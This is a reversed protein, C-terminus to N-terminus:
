LPEGAAPRLLPALLWNGLSGLLLVSGLAALMPTSSFSLLGFALSSTAASLLIARLTSDLRGSQYVFIAYDMGLGLVLYCGLLHFLGIPVGSASLLSLTLVTSTLPVLVLTLAGPRRYVLWLLALVVLYAVALLWAATNQLAALRTSIGATRDVWLLNDNDAALLQLADTDNIGRLGVMSAYGADYRGLWLLQQDSRADNLWADLTLPPRDAARRYAARAREVAEAPLGARRMFREVEGDPEYLPALLRLHRSQTEPSPLWQSLATYGSLAGVDRLTDLRQLLREEAALVEAPSDGRVLYFQNAATPQLLQMVRQESAMLGPSPQHLARLDAGSRWQSLGAFLLLACAAVLWPWHRGLRGRLWLPASAVRSVLPVPAAMPDVFRLPYVVVVFLWAGVLGVMAFVAVQQLGSLSAQLLCLYGLVSTTLGLALAPLIRVLVTRDGPRTDQLKCLYHLSYDIVVGILSAGFVLTILHVRGFLAHVVTLALLAGFAVSLVSFALPGLARFALFFLLVVGTISGVAILTMEARARASAEAAHWAVGSLLLRPSGTELSWPLGAVLANLRDHVELGFTDGALTVPFLVAYGAEDHILLRDGLYEGPLEPLLRHGLEAALALPDEVPSLPRQAALGFLASEARRLLPRYDGQELWHRQGADLLHFRYDLLATLQDREEEPIEPLLLDSDAIVSALQAAAALAQDRQPAQVGLILRQGYTDHLRAAASEVLPHDASEPFLARLDTDVVLGRSCQLPLGVLVVLLLLALLGRFLNQWFSRSGVM